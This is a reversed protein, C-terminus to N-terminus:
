KRCNGQITVYLKIVSNTWRINPTIAAKAGKAATESKMVVIYANRNFQGVLWKEVEQFHEVLREETIKSQEETKVLWEEM